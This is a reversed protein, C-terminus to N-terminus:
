CLAAGIFEGRNQLPRRLLRLNVRSSIGSRVGIFVEGEFGVQLAHSLSILSVSFVYFM